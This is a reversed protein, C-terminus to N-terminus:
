ERIKQKTCLDFNKASTARLRTLSTEGYGFTEYPVFKIRGNVLIFGPVDRVLDEPTRIAAWTSPELLTQEKFTMCRNLKAMIELKLESRLLKQLLVLNKNSEFIIKDMTMATPSSVYNQSALCERSNNVENTVQVHETPTGTIICLSEDENPSM